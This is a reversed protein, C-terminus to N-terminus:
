GGDAASVARGMVRDRAARAGAGAPEVPQELAVVGLEGLVRAHEGARRQRDPDRPGGRARRYRLRAREAVQEAVAHIWPLRPEPPTLEHEPGRGLEAQECALRRGPGGRRAQR